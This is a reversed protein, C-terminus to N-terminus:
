EKIKKLMVIRSDMTGASSSLPIPLVLGRSFKKASFYKDIAEETVPNFRDQASSEESAGRILLRGRLRLVRFLEAAYKPRDVNEIVHFLGRDVIFDVSKDEIPLSFVSGLILDVKADKEIARKEAVKLAIRSFDVGVIKFGNQAFFVADFGGGSGVDLIQAKKSILGAAVLAALEPSPYYTEWHTFDGSEYISEWDDRDSM